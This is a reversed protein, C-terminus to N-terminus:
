SESYTVLQERVAEESIGTPIYEKLCDALTLLLDEVGNDEILKALLTRAERSDDERLYQRIQDLTIGGDFDIYANQILYRALERV